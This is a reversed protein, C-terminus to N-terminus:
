ISRTITFDAYMHAYLVHKAPHSRYIVAGAFCIMGVVVYM